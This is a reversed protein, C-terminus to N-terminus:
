NAEVKEANKREQQLKIVKQKGLRLWQVLPINATCTFACTGCEMCVTIGLKEAEETRNLQTNRVLKTPTLNLPCVEVCQGCRLCPTEVNEKVEEKTLVLIGSTAKMVPVNLDFQAAGM